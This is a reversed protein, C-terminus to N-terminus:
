KSVNAVGERMTSLSSTMFETDRLRVLSFEIIFMPDMFSMLVMLFLGTLKMSTRRLSVV